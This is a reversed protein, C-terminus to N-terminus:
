SVAIEEIKDVPQQKSSTFHLIEDGINVEIKYRKIFVNLEAPNNTLNAKERPTMMTYMGISEERDNTKSSFTNTTFNYKMSLIINDTECKGNSKKKCLILEFVNNGNDTAGFSPIDISLIGNEKLETDIVSTKLNSGPSHTILQITQPTPKTEERHIEQYGCYKISIEDREKQCENDDNEKESGFTTYDTLFGGNRLQEKDEENFSAYRKVTCDNCEDCAQTGVWNDLQIQFRKSLKSNTGDANCISFPSRCLKICDSPKAKTKM